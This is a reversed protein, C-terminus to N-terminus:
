CLTIGRKFLACKRTLFPTERVLTKSNEAYTSFGMPDSGSPHNNRFIAKAGVALHQALNRPRALAAKSRSALHSTFHWRPRCNTVLWLRRRRLFGQDVSQRLRAMDYSRRFGAPDKSSGGHLSRDAPNALKSIVRACMAPHVAPQEARPAHAGAEFKIQENM